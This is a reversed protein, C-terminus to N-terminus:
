CSAAAQERALRRQDAYQATPIRPAGAALVIGSKGAFCAWDMGQKNTECYAHESRIAARLEAESVGPMLASGGSTLPPLLFVAYVIASIGAMALIFIRFNFGM